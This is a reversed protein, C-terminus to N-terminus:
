TVVRVIPSIGLWYILAPSVPLWPSPGASLLRSSSTRVVLLLVTSDDVQVVQIVFRAHEQCRADSAAM